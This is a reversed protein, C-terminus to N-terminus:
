VDMFLKTREKTNIKVQMIQMNNITTSSKKSNIFYLGAERCAGLEFAGTAGAEIGLLLLLEPAFPLGGTDLL